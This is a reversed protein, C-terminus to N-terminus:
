RPKGKLAPPRGHGPNVQPREPVGEELVSVRAEPLRPEAEGRSGRPSASQRALIKGPPGGMCGSKSSQLPESVSILIFSSGFPSQPKGPPLLRCRGRPRLRGKQSIPTLHLGLPVNM